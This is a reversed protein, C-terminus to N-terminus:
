FLLAGQLEYSGFGFFLIRSGLLVLARFLKALSHARTFAWVFARWAAWCCGQLLLLRGGGPKPGTGALCCSWLLAM